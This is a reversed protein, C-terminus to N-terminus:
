CDLLGVAVREPVAAPQEHVVPEDVAEGCDLAVQDQRDVFRQKGLYLAGGVGLDQEVQRKGEAQGLIRRLGDGPAM